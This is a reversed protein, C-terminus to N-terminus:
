KTAHDRKVFSEVSARPIRTLSGVKRRVLEGRRLLNKITGTSVNLLAAVQQITLLLPAAPMWEASGAAEGLQTTKGSSM